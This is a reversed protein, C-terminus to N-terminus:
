NHIQKNVRYISFFGLGISMILMLILQLNSGLNGSTEPLKTPGSRVVNIDNSVVSSKPYIYVHNLQKSETILPLKVLSPEMVKKIEKHPLETVQYVGTTLGNIVAEGEENTVIDMNFAENGTAVEYSSLSNGDTEDTKLKMRTINYSIGSMKKLQNGSEDVLENMQTGNSPFKNQVNEHDELRYKIVHISYVDTSEAAYSSFNSSYVFLLILFTIVLFNLIKKM